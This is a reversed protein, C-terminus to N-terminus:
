RRYLLTTMVSLWLVIGSGTASVAILTPGSLCALATLCLATMAWGTVRHPPYSFARALPLFHLGVVIGILAPIIDPRQLLSAAILALLIGFIEALVAQKYLRLNAPPRPTAPPHRLFRQWGTALMLTATALLALLGSLSLASIANLGMIIWWLGFGTLIAISWLPNPWLPNPPAPQSTTTM